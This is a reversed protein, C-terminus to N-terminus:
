AGLGEQPPWPTHPKVRANLSTLRQCLCAALAVQATKGAARGRASFGTLGANERVAVLTRMSRPARVPARGGWITRSGRRTGSARSLPAVGVLAALGADDHAVAWRAGTPRLAMERQATAVAIGGVCTTAAM